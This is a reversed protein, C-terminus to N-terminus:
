EKTEESESVEADPEDKRAKHIKREPEDKEPVLVANDVLLDLTKEFAAQDRLYERDDPTLKERFEEPTMHGMNEAAYRDIYKDLEEDTSLVALQKDTNKGNM